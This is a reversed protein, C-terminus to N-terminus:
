VELLETHGFGKRYDLLSIILPTIRFFAVKEAEEDDTQMYQAVQPFKEFVLQDVKAIENPDTVLEAHAGLSLGTIDDWNEYPPNITLSVKNNRVINAAKQSDSSTGFYITMGDNVYSVTTAQPFGDGRITAITMDNTENIISLIQNKNPNEM